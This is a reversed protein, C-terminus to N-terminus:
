LTRPLYILLCSKWQFGVTVAVVSDIHITKMVHLFEVLGIEGLEDHVKEYNFALCDQSHVGLPRFSIEEKIHM